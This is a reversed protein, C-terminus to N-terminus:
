PPVMPNSRLTQCALIIGSPTSIVKTEGSPSMPKGPVRVTCTLKVSRVGLAGQKICGSCVSVFESNEIERVVRKEIEGVIGGGGDETVGREDVRILVSRHILRQNWRANQIRHLSRRVIKPGRVDDCVFRGFAAVPVVRDQSRIGQVVKGSLDIVGGRAPGHLNKRGLRAQLEKNRAEGRRRGSCGRWTTKRERREAQFGLVEWVRGVM